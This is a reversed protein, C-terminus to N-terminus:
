QTSIKQPIVTFSFSSISVSSLGHDETATNNHVCQSDNFWKCHIVNSVTLCTEHCCQIIANAAALTMARTTKKQVIQLWYLAVTAVLRLQAFYQASEFKVCPTWSPKTKVMSIAMSLLMPAISINSDGTSFVRRFCYRTMRNAFPIFTM